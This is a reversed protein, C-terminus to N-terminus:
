HEVSFGELTIWKNQDQWIHPTIKMTKDDPILNVEYFNYQAATDKLYWRKDPSDVGRLPAGWGGDGIYTIGNENYADFHEPFQDWFNNFLTSKAIEDYVMNYDIDGKDQILYLSTYYVLEDIAELTTNVGEVEEWDGGSLASLEPMNWPTYDEEPDYDEKAEKMGENIMQDLEQKYEKLGGIKKTVKYSHDNAEISLDINHKEFLPIWFDRISRSTENHFSKYSPWGPVHYQTILWENNDENLTKKLWEIQPGGYVLSTHDSDLNLLTLDPGYNLKYYKENGPLLFNNYYFAADKRKGFYGGKVEHNGIAPVIPIRKNDDTIMLESWDEFWKEWNSESLPSTIFDGTFMVFDPDLEAARRMIERRDERNTRSDGGALFTINESKSPATEFIFEDSKKNGTKVYSIYKTNPELGKIESGHIWYKTGEFTWTKAQISKFNKNEANQPKYYILSDAEGETRWTMSMTTQPNSQWTLVIRTPIVENQANLIISFSFLLSIILITTLLLKKRKNIM